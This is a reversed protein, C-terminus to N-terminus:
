PDFRVASAGADLLKQSVESMAKLEPEQALLAKEFDLSAKEASENTMELQKALAEAYAKAAAQDVVEGGEKITVEGNLGLSFEKTQIPQPLPGAEGSLKQLIAELRATEEKLRARLERYYRVQGGLTELAGSETAYAERMVYKAMSPVDATMGSGAVSRVFQTWLAQTQTNLGDEKQLAVAIKKLANLQSRMLVSEVQQVEQATMVFPLNVSGSDTLPVEGVAASSSAAKLQGKVQDQLHPPLLGLFTDMERKLSMVKNMAATDSSSGPNMMIQDIEAKLNLIRAMVAQETSTVEAVAFSPACVVAVCTLLFFFRKTM